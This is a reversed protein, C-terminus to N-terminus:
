NKFHLRIQESLDEYIEQKESEDFKIEPIFVLPAYTETKMLRGLSVEPGKPLPEYKHAPTKEQSEAKPKEKLFSDVLAQHVAPDFIGMAPTGDMGSIRKMAETPTLQPYGSRISTLKDFVDAFACVKAYVPIEDGKKGTPFGSGDTHEHHFLIMNLVEQSVELKRKKISVGGLQPHQKYLKAENPNMDQLEKTQLASPLEAMGIDHLLGGIRLTEPETLGLTMGFLCCYAAVNQNHSVTTMKQSAFTNATKILDSKPNSFSELDSVFGKLNELLQKGDDENYDDDSFFGGMLSGLRNAIKKSKNTSDLGPQDDFNTIQSRIFSQYLGIEARKLYLAYHSKERFKKIIKEDLFQDKEIYLIAKQNMPLYVYVSFPLSKSKEIEVLQIRMLQDLSLEKGVCESPAIEFIKNILLEEELPYQYTGSIGAAYLEALSHSLRGSYTALICVSFNPHQAKFSAISEALLKLNLRLSLPALALLPARIALDKYEQSRFDLVNYDFERLRAALPEMAQPIPLLLPILSKPNEM